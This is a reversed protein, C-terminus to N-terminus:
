DRRTQEEFYAEFLEILRQTVPGVRGEGVPQEDIRSVPMIHRSTSTIFCESWFTMGALSLPAERVPIHNTAALHLVVERTVGSLVQRAPPTVVEGGIVAYLNSNSGETLQGEHFLLAEHAGAARAQRQAMFSVLTNLSKAEPLYRQAEFSIASVGETYYERPYVPSGQPWIYATVRGSNEPGIMFLRVIGDHGDDMRNAELVATIWCAITPPDAPLPLGIIQASHALRALHADREFVVGNRVQMSEYVGYAGYIAPNFVSIAAEGPPILEGNRSVYLPSVMLTSWAFIAPVV